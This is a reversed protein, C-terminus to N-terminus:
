DNVRELYHNVVVQGKSTLVPANDGAEILGKDHLAHLLRKVQEPEIGLVNSLSIDRDGTSYVTTLVETETESLSLEQLSAMHKEYERRLFRGLISLSRSSETAAVTTMAENNIHDVVLVPRDHGDVTRTERSFDTVVDLAINVPGDETEIRVADSEISLIGGRFETDLVRGGLKAPHKITAHTGNLVAKFLVTTFKEIAAEEGAVLAIRHDGARRFAITVPTGPLSDFVQPVSEPTIDIISSLPVTLKEDDSAALVLQGKGLVVRGETPADVEDSEVDFRATFDALVSSM